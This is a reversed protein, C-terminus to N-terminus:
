AAVINGTSSIPSWLCYYTLTGATITDTAITQIINTGNLIQLAPLVEVTAPGTDLWIEGQDIQTGTSQAILSATNGAIGVELTGSGTLDAGSCVAFIRAAVVGTVTFLTTAGVAGTTLASYTIAKTAVLGLNDIPVSNADRNFAANTIAM